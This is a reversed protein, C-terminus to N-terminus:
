IVINNLYPQESGKHKPQQQTQLLGLSTWERPRNGEAIGKIQDNSILIKVFAEVVDIVLAEGPPESFDKGLMGVEELINAALVVNRQNGLGLGHTVKVITQCSTHVIRQM